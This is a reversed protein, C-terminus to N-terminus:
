SLIALLSQFDAPLPAEITLTRDQLPHLFTIKWAHLMQRRIMPEGSKKGYTTDGAVPHGLSSFHVRIQHTRGTEIKCKLLTFNRFRRLVQYRTVAPRGSPVVAMKKRLKPHRGIPKEIVGNELVVKGHVLVQYYKEVKREKFQRSLALHAEENKAVLLVGSTEKDLRHVIGPRGPDVQSLNKWHYLLANVLTGKWHGVAPHVVLGPPKNIALIAEDEYLIDLPINEEQLTSSEPPPLVIELEEGGRLLTGAKRVKERNLRLLGDTLFNKVKARTWGLERSAYLDLREPKSLSPVELRVM